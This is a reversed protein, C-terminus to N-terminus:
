VDAAELWPEGPPLVGVVTFSEGDLRMTSDLIEPDAAFRTHWYDSSLLVVRNDGGPEDEGPLMTRGLVPRVGLVKFFGASIM